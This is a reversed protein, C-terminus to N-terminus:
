IGGPLMICFIGSFDPNRSFDTSLIKGSKKLFPNKANNLSLLTNEKKEFYTGIKLAVTAIKSKPPFDGQRIRSDGLRIVLPRARSARM